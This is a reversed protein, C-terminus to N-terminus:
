YKFHTKIEDFHGQMHVYCCKTNTCRLSKGNIFIWPREYKCFTPPLIYGIKIVQGLDIHNLACILPYNKYM